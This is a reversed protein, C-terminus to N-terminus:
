AGGIIVVHEGDRVLGARALPSSSSPALSENDGDAGSSSSNSCDPSICHEVAADSSGVLSSSRSSSTTGSSCSGSSGRSSGRMQLQRRITTLGRGQMAGANSAADVLDWAHVVCGAPPAGGCGGDAASGSGDCCGPNTAGSVFPPLRKINTSGIGVVVHRADIVSGDALTARTHSVAPVATAPRGGDHEDGAAFVPDLAVVRGRRVIRDVCYRDVCDACHDEFLRAGPTHFPGHFRESKAIHRLPQVERGRATADAFHTLSYSDHPDVHLASNSRLYPIQLTAFQSCRRKTQPTNSQTHTNDAIAVVSLKPHLTLGARDFVGLKKGDTWGSAASMLSLWM